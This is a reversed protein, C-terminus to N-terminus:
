FILNSLRKCSGNAVKVWYLYLTGTVCAAVIAATMGDDHPYKFLYYVDKFLSYFLLFCNRPTSFYRTKSGYISLPAYVYKIAKYM